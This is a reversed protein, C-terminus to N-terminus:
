LDYRDKNDNNTNFPLAGKKFMSTSKSDKTDTYESISVTTENDLEKQSICFVICLIGPLILESKYEATYIKKVAFMGTILSAIALLAYLFTTYTLVFTAGKYAIAFYIIKLLPFAEVVMGIIVFITALISM